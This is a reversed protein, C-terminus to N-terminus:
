YEDHRFHFSGERDQFGIRDSGSFGADDEGAEFLLTEHHPAQLPYLQCPVLRSGEIRDM